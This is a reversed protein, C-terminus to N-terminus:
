PLKCPICFRGGPCEVLCPNSGCGSIKANVECWGYGPLEQIQEGTFCLGPESGNPLYGYWSRCTSDMLAVEKVPYRYNGKHPSGADNFSIHDNFDFLSPDKLGEDTWASWLFGLVGTLSEKFAIQLQNRNMPDRRVWALDPDAGEGNAFIEREYGNGEQSPEEVYLPFLGGIDENEDALVWVNDTTWESNPPLAAMVLFDGRGDHDLDLEVSYRIDGEDPLNGILVFTIYIWPNAGQLKVQYIDLYSRYEMRDPTYPRELRSWAYNDGLATKQKALDVTVMDPLIVQYTSPSGPLMKHVPEPTASPTPTPIQTETPIATETETPLKEIAATQRAENLSRNFAEKTKTGAIV